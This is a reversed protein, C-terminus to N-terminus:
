RDSWQEVGVPTGARSDLLSYLAPMSAYNRHMAIGGALRRSAPMLGRLLPLLEGFQLWPTCEVGYRRFTPM